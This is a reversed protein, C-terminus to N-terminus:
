RNSANAAKKLQEAAARDVVDAARRAVEPFLHQYRARVSASSQGLRRGIEFDSLGANALISAHTHRLVHLVVLPKKAVAIEDAGAVARAFAKRVYEIKMPAGGADVFVRDTGEAEIRPRADALAKLTEVLAAPLTVARGRGAKENEPRFFVEAGRVIEQGGRTEVRRDLDVDRWALLLAEGRRAGTFLLFEVLPRLRAPCAQLLARWEATELYTVRERGRESHAETLRFPNHGQPVHGARAAWTLLACGLARYRNATAGSSRDALANLWPTLAEAGLSALPVAAWPAEAMTDLRQVDVALTSAKKRGAAHALYLPCADKFSLRGSASENFVTALVERMTAGQRAEAEARTLLSRAVARTPAAREARQGQVNFRLYVGPRGPRTIITGFPRRKSM